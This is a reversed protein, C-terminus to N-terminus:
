LFKPNLQVTRRTTLFFSNEGPLVQAVKQKISYAATYPSTAPRTDLSEGWVEIIDGASWEKKKSQQNQFIVACLAAENKKLKIEHGGVILVGTTESIKHYDAQTHVSRSRLRKSKVEEVWEHMRKLDVEVYYFGTPAAWELRDGFNDEIYNEDPLIKLIGKQELFHPTLIEKYYYWLYERRISYHVEEISILLTQQARMDKPGEDKLIELCLQLADNVITVDDNEM